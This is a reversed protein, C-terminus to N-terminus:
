SAVEAYDRVDYSAHFVTSRRGYMKKIDKFLQEREAAEKGLLQAAM